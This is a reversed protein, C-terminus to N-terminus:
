KEQRIEAQLSLLLYRSFPMTHIFGSATYSDYEAQYFDISDVLFQWQNDIITALTQKEEKNEAQLRLENPTM